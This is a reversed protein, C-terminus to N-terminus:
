ARDWSECLPRINTAMGQCIALGQLPLPFSTLLVPVSVEAAIWCCSREVNIWGEAVSQIVVGDRRSDRLRRWEIWIWAVLLAMRQAGIYCKSSDVQTICRLHFQRLIFPSQCLLHLM